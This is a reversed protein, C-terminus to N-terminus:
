LAACRHELPNTWKTHDFDNRKLAKEDREIGFSYNTALMKQPIKYEDDRTSLQILSASSSVLRSIPHRTSWSGRGLRM